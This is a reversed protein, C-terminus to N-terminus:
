TSRKSVKNVLEAIYKHHKEWALWVNNAWRKVSIEHEGFSNAQIVELVTITGNPNPPELWKFKQGAKLTASMVETAQRGTLGKELVLYLSILHISVSQKAQKNRKGPHEPHQVAYTDVTLRHVLEPYGYEGYEKALIQTYIEWCGPVAGIYKHTAGKIDNVIAGCGYCIIKKMM